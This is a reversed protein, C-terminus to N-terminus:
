ACASTSNRTAKVSIQTPRAPVALRIKMTSPSMQRASETMRKRLHLGHSCPTSHNRFPSLVHNPCSESKRNEPEKDAGQAHADAGAHTYAQHQHEDADARGQEPNDSQDIPRVQLVGDPPPSCPSFM